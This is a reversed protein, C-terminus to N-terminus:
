GLSRMVIGLEEIDITGNGDKDFLKFAERHKATSLFFWNLILYMEFKDARHDRFELLREESQSTHTRKDTKSM